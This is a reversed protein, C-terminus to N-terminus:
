EENPDMMGRIMGRLHNNTKVMGYSAGEIGAKSTVEGLGQGKSEEELVDTEDDANESVINVDTLGDVM